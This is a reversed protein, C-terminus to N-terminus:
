ESKVAICCTVVGSIGGGEGWAGSEIWGLEEELRRELNWAQQESYGAVLPM